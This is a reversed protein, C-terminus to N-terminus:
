SEISLLGWLISIRRRRTRRRLQNEKVIQINEQVKPEPHHQTFLNAQQPKERYMANVKRKYALIRESDLKPNAAHIAYLGRGIKSAAGTRIWAGVFRSMNNEELLEPLDVNQGNYKKIFAIYKKVTHERSQRM